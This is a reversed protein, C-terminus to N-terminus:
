ESVIVKAHKIVRNGIKYGTELVQLVTNSPIKPDETPQRLMADHFDVDFPVQAQNIPEVGYREFLQKFKSAVMQVGQLFNDDINTSASAELTRNMDEAIPIIDQLAQIRADEFLSIREKQVRKRVNELEAAKRLLTDKTNALDLQLQAVLDLEEEGNAEDTEIEDTTLETNLDIAASGEEDTKPEISDKNTTENSTSENSSLDNDQNMDEQISDKVNQKSNKQTSDKMKDLDNGKYIDM